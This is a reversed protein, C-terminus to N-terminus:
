KIDYLLWILWTERGKSFYDKITISDLEILILSVENMKNHGVIVKFVKV